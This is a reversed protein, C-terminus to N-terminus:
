VDHTSEQSASSVQSRRARQQLRQAGAADGQALLLAALHWLAEQHDPQLYLAKRYLQLAKDIDQAADCLIGQLCYVAANPAAGRLYQECLQAAQALEGRDACARARALVDEAAGGSLLPAIAAAHRKPQGVQPVLSLAAIAPRPLRVPTHLIPKRRFGFSLAIGLAQVESYLMLAAEAPGVFICGEPDLLSELLAVVRAQLARDFYILVNRCFIFDYAPQDQLFGAELMNGFRFHVCNRVQDSLRWRVPKHALAEFHRIRYDLQKGRFANSGYIGKQASALAHECIDIADIRFRSGPVGAELLAMAISYPEEGSSCPMSLIRVCAAPVQQLRTQVLQTLAAFAPRDRFFWTEPVVVLEVLEQLERPTSQLRYADLQTHALINMREHVAREILTRGVAAMDLGMHQKLIAAIMDMDNM